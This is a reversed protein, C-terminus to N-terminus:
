SLKCRLSGRKGRTPHFLGSIVRYFRPSRPKGYSLAPRFPSFPDGPYTQPDVRRQRSELEGGTECAVAGGHGGVGQVGQRAQGGVGDGRADEDAADGEDLDVDFGDGFVQGLPGRVVVTMVAPFFAGAVVTDAEGPLM